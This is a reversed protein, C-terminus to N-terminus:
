SSIWLKVTILKIQLMTIIENISSTLALFLEVEFIGTVNSTIPFIESNIVVLDVVKTKFHHLFDVSDHAFNFNVIIKVIKLSLLDKLNRYLVM